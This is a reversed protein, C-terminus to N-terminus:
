ARESRFTRFIECLFIFHSIENSVDWIEFFFMVQALFQKGYLGQVLVFDFWPIIKVNSEDLSDIKSRLYAHILVRKPSSDKSGIITVRDRKFLRFNDFPTFNQEQFFLEM